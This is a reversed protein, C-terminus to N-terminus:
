RIPFLEAKPPKLLWIAYVYSISYKYSERLFGKMDRNFRRPSTTVSVTKEFCVKGHKRLRMGIEVDGGIKYRTDVSRLKTFASRRIAMNPGVLHPRNILLHFRSFLTYINSFLMNIAFSNTDLRLSGTVGVVEHNEFAKALMPLWNPSVISDSDTIAIINGKATQLGKNLAYIYGQRNETIVQTRFKKAIAVTKDTSNNDVVTVNYKEKPYLQNQLSRLCTSLYKEENYAPIIISIFPLKKLM